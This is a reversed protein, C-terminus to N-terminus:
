RPAMGRVIGGSADDWRWQGDAAVGGVWREPPKLSLYDVRGSVVQQGIQTISAGRPFPKDGPGITLVSPQTLAMQQVIHLFMLDALFPLKEPGQMLAAFIRGISAPAEALIQLCLRQTMSLGDHVGPLEQLQRHLAAAAFPLAPTGTAAIAALDSPDPRRLARWIAGALQLQAPTIPTRAPWLSALAEPMLQGLGIFRPVSAHRDICILELRGPLRGEALRSLCRALILQDYSDHEFWLVVRPYEHAAALRRESDRLGAALQQETEGRFWGYAEALFHARKGILDLLDPVPGECIPDSYELFDGTFGAQRLGDCIDSGCRIHLTALDSDLM